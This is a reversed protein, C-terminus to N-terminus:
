AMAPPTTEDEIWQLFDPNGALIPLAVVCPIDYSHLERVAEICSQVKGMTTKCLMVVEESEEIADQWWYMAHMGPLMNVCACLRRELLRRGLSRAEDMSPATIYLLRAEM